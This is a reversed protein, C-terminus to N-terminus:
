VHQSIWGRPHSKHVDEDRIFDLVILRGSSPNLSRRIDRIITRPFEFHHYVDCIFAVDVTLSPDLNLSSASSQVLSCNNLHEESIKRRLHSLFVDSIETGVVKGTPGVLSSLPRLFLGTWYFVTCGSYFVAFHISSLYYGTGTGVDVVVPSSSLSLNGYVGVLSAIEGACAAIDRNEPIEFRSQFTSLLENADLSKANLFDGNVGSFFDKSNCSM